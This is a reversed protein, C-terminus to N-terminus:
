FSLKIMKVKYLKRINKNKSNRALEHVQRDSMRKEKEQCYMKYQKSPGWKNQKSVKFVPIQSIKMSGILTFM